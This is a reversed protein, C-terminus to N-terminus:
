ERYAKAVMGNVNDLACEVLNHVEKVSINTQRDDIANKVIEVVAKKDHDNLNVCCRQASKQIANIIKLEDFDQLSGDKKIIKSM